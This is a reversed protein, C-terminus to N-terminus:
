LIDPAELNELDKQTIIIWCEANNLMVGVLMAGRMLMVVKFQHRGYSRENLTTGIKNITGHGKSTREKNNSTNKAKKAIVDGLYKKEFVESLAEKGKFVDIIEKFGSKNQVVKKGWLDITITQCIDENQKKGIHLKECKDCGYQLNM